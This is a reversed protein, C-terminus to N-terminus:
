DALPVRAFTRNRSGATRGNFLSGAAEDGAFLKTGIDIPAIQAARGLLPTLTALDYTSMTRAAKLRQALM